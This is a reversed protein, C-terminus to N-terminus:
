GGAPLRSQAVRRRAPISTLNNEVALAYARAHVWGAKMEAVIDAFFQSTVKSLRM